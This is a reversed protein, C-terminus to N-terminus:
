KDRKIVFDLYAKLSNKIEEDSVHGNIYDLAEQHFDNMRKKAYEIGNNEKAFAVLSAIEDTTAM